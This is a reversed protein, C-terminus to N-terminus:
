RLIEFFEDWDGEVLIVSDYWNNVKWRPDPDDKNILAYTRKGLAGALHLIATDVTVVFDVANIMAATDGFDKIESGFLDFDVDRSLESLYVRDQLMFLNGLKTLPKFRKLHCCRDLNKPHEPSGEWAIGIKRGPGLDTKKEYTLYSRSSGKVNLLFPLSLSLIHFDHEPLRHDTKDLLDVGLCALVPHLTVPAHLTVHCGRNKLEPVYRMMQIIDGYGQEAYIIVRKENLLKSGDWMKSYHYVHRYYEMLPNQIREKELNTM